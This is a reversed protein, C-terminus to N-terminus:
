GFYAVLIDKFCYNFFGEIYNEIAFHCERIHIYLIKSLQYQKFNKPEAKESNYFFVTSFTRSTSHKHVDTIKKSYM